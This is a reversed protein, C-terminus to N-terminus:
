NFWVTWLAIYVFTIQSAWFQFLSTLLLFGSFTMLLIVSNFSLSVPTEFQCATSGIVLNPNSSDLCSNQPETLSRYAQSIILRHVVQGQPLLNSVWCLLLQLFPPKIDMRCLSKHFRAAFIDSTHLSVSFSGLNVGNDPSSSCPLVDFM